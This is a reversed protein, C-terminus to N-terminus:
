KEVHMNKACYVVEGLNLKATKVFPFANTLYCDTPSLDFHERLLERLNKNTPYNKSYGLDKLESDKEAKLLKEDCWDQGIIMVDACVNCGFKTWPSVYEDCDYYGNNLSKDGIHKYGNLQNEMDERSREEALEKLKDLRAQKRMTEFEKEPIPRGGLSILPTRKLNEMLGEYAANKTTFWETAVVPFGPRNEKTFVAWWGDGNEESQLFKVEAVTLLDSCYYQGQFIPM